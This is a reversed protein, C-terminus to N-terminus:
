LAVSTGALGQLRIVANAACFGAQREVKKLDMGLASYAAQSSGLFFISITYFYDCGCRMMSADTMNIEKTM